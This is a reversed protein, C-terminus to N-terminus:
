EVMTSVTIESKPLGSVMQRSITELGKNVQYSVQKELEYLKSKTHMVIRIKQLANQELLLSIERIKLDERRAKYIVHMGKASLTTDVDYAGSLAPANINGDKLVQLEDMWNVRLHERTETKGDLVAIKTATRGEANM